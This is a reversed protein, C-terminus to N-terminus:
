PRKELQKSVTNLQANLALNTLELANIREALQAIKGAQSSANLRRESEVLETRVKNLQQKRQNFQTRLQQLKQQSRTAEQQAIFLETRNAELQQQTTSQTDQETQLQLKLQSTQSACVVLEENAQLMLTHLSKLQLQQSHLKSKELYLLSWGLLAVLTALLCLLYSRLKM